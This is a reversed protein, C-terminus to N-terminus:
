GKINGIPLLKVVPKSIGANSLTDIVENIEKYASGAEEALGSMSGTKVYIGREEMVKESYPGDTM